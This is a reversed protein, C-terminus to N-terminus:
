GSNVSVERIVALIQWPLPLSQGIRVRGGISKDWGVSSLDIDGTFPQVTHDLVDAGFTRTPMQTGNITMGITRYCRVVYRNVAIAQGQATGFMGPQEVPLVDVYSQYEIGAEIEYAPRTLTIQNAIVTVLPQPSGDAIPKVANGNCYDFGAWITSAFASEGLVLVLGPDLAQPISYTNADIVHVVFDGNLVAPIFNRQRITEGEIFGHAAKTFSSLASPGATWGLSATVASYNSGTISFDTNLDPDDVEVSRTIVGNIARATINWTQDVAGAPNSSVSEIIGATIDRAWGIVNQERDFATRLVVGDARLSHITSDPEQAYAMQLIGGATIHEALITMDPSIYADKTVEYSFARLKRGSRTWFLIENGVRLPRVPNCGYASQTEAQVNTPALAREQGGKLTVEGGYTFSALAKSNTLHEIPNVQDSNITFSFGDADNAGAAFNLYEAVKTGWITQPYGPSGGAILRQQYLGVSNPYGRVGGWIKAEVTWGDAGVALVSSLISRVVGSVVLNSTFVTIEVLGGNVNAFKGIHSFQANNQWTAIAATLTIVAGLPGVASPTVTTKPSQNIGWIGSAFVLTTFTDVVTANVVTTSTFGTITAIGNGAVIQRGVDSNVFAAASATATIAGVGASLTLITAPLQLLEATPEFEFPAPVMKWDTDTTRTLQQIPHNVHALYMTSSGQVYHIGDLEGELYPTALEFPTLPASLVQARDRTFVRMYLDGFELQYAATKSFTFPILIAIKAAFKTAAVHRKGGRRICGGHVLPYCNVMNEAASRYKDIDVRGLLRPSIEGATFNTQIATTKM